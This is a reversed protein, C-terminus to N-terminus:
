HLLIYVALTKANLGVNQGMYDQSSSKLVKLLQLTSYLKIGAMSDVFIYQYWLQMFIKKFSTALTVGWKFINEMM